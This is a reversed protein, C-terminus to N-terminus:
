GSEFGTVPTVLGRSPQLGCSESADGLTPATVPTVLGRSRQLSPIVLAVPM